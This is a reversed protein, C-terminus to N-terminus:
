APEAASAAALRPQLVVRDLALPQFDMEFLEVDRSSVMKELQARDNVYDQTPETFVKIGGRGTGGEAAALSSIALAALCFPRLHKAPM